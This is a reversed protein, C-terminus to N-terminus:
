HLTIEQTLRYAEIVDETDAWDGRVPGHHSHWGSRPMGFAGMSALYQCGKESELWLENVGNNVRLALTKM